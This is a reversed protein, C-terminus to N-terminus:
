HKQFMIGILILFPFTPTEILQTEVSKSFYEAIQQIM